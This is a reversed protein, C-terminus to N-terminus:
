PRGGLEVVVWPVSRGPRRIEVRAAKGRSAAAVARDAALAVPLEPLGARTWDFRWRLRVTRGDAGLGPERIFFAGWHVREGRRVAAAVADVRWGARRVTAPAGLDSARLPGAGDDSARSRLPGRITWTYASM